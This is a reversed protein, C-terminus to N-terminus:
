NRIITIQGSESIRVIKSSKYVPKTDRLIQVVYDVQQILDQSIESFSAPSPVGSFNASTSVIPKGFRSLLQLCFEHKPIRIGISGDEALLEEPLNSAKPYIISLPEKESQIMEKAIDPINEVYKSLQQFDACLLLMSKGQERGKIKIIKNIAEVNAADCGMGWITDTPYILVGGSRLIEVCHEIENLQTNIIGM